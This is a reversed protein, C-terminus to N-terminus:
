VPEVTSVQRLITLRANGGSRCSPTDDGCHSAHWHRMTYGIPRQRGFSVLAHRRWMAFCAMIADCVWDPTAARVVRPRTTEVNRLMGSSCRMDNLVRWRVMCDSLLDTAEDIYALKKAADEKANAKRVLLLVRLLDKNLDECLTYRYERSVRKTMDLSKLLLEYVAIYVPLQDYKRAM